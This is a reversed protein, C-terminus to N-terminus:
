RETLRWPPEPTWAPSRRGRLRSPKRRRSRSPCSGRRRRRQYPPQNTVFLTTAEVNDKTYRQGNPHVETAVAVTRWKSNARVIRGRPYIIAGRPGEGCVAAV